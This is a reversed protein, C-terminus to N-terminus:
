LDIKYSKPVMNIIISTSKDPVVVKGASLWLWLLCNEQWEM